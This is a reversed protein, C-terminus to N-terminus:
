PLTAHGLIGLRDSVGDLDAVVEFALHHCLDALGATAVAAGQDRDLEFVARVTDDPVVLVPAVRQDGANRFPALQEGIRFVHRNGIWADAGVDQMDDDFLAALRDKELVVVVLLRRIAVVADM